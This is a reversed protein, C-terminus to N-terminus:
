MYNTITNAFSSFFQTLLISTGSTGGLFHWRRFMYAYPARIYFGDNVKAMEILGRENTLSM